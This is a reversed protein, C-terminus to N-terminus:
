GAFERTNAFSERHEVEGLEHALVADGDPGDPGGAARLRMRVELRWRPQLQLEVPLLGDLHGVAVALQELEVHERRRQAMGAPVYENPRNDCSHFVLFCCILRYYAGTHACPLHPRSAFFAFDWPMQPCIAPMRM